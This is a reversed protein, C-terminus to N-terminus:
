TKNTNILVAFSLFIMNIISLLELESLGVQKAFLFLFVNIAFAGICIRKYIQMLNGM